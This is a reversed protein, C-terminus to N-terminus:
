PAPPMTAVHCFVKKRTSIDMFSEGFVGLDSEFAFIPEFEFFPSLNFFTCSLRHAWKKPYTCNQAGNKKKHSRPCQANATGLVTCVASPKPSSVLRFAYLAVPAHLRRLSLGHKIQRQQLAAPSPQRAPGVPQM